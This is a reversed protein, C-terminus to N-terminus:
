LGHFDKWTVTEMLFVQGDIKPTSTVSSLQLQWYHPDKPSPPASALLSSCGQASFASPPCQPMIQVEVM